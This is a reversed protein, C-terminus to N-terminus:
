SKLLIQRYYKIFDIIVEIEFTGDITEFYSFSESIMPSRHSVELPSNAVSGLGRGGM